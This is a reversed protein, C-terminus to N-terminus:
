EGFEITVIASSDDHSVQTVTVGAGADTFVEGDGVTGLLLPRPRQNSCTSVFQHISTRAVFEAPLTEDFGIPQRYSLM